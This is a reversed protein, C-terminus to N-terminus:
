VFSYCGFLAAGFAEFVLAASATFWATSQKNFPYIMWALSCNSYRLSGGSHAICDVRLPLSSRLVFLVSHFSRVTGFDTYSSYVIYFCVFQFLSTFQISYREHIQSVSSSYVRFPWYFSWKWRLLRSFSFSLYLTEIRM